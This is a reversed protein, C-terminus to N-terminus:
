ELMRQVLLHKQPKGTTTMPLDAAALMTFGRPVKFPALPERCFRVLDEGM